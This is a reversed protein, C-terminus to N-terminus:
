GGGAAGDGGIGGDVEHGMEEAVARYAEARVRNQRSKIVLWLVLLGLAAVIAITVPNIDIGMPVASGAGSAGAARNQEVAKRDAVAAEGRLAEPAHPRMSGRMMWMAVARAEVDAVRRTWGKGFVGFTSLSKLFSLRKACLGQIVDKGSRDRIATMTMPGVVGDGKVGVVWQLHKAARSPGSNVAYDFAALDVGKPMDTARIPKWYGGWYIAQVQEDTIARLDEVTSGPFWHQFTAFTVGKNTAGGPDRPHNAWGGEHTLTIELCPVFNGVAM